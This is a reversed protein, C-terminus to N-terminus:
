VPQQFRTCHITGFHQFRRSLAAGKTTTTATPDASFSWVASSSLLSQRRWWKRRISEGLCWNGISRGHIISLRYLNSQMLCNWNRWREWWRFALALVVMRDHPVIRHCAHRDDQRQDRHSMRCSTKKTTPNRAAVSRVQKRKAIFYLIPM